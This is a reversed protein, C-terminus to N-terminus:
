KCVQNLCELHVQGTLFGYACIVLIAVIFWVNYDQYWKTDPFPDYYM